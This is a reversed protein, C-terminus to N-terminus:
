NIQNSFVPCTCRRRAIRPTHVPKMRHSGQAMGDTVTQVNMRMALLCATAENSAWEHRPDHYCLVHTASYTQARHCPIKMDELLDVFSSLCSTSQFNECQIRTTAYVM